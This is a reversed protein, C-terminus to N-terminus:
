RSVSASMTASAPRGIASIKTSSPSGCKRSAPAARGHAVREGPVVAHEREAAARDEVRVGALQQGPQGDDEQVISTASATLRM